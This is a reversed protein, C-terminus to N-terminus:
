NTISYKEIMNEYFKQQNGIWTNYNSGEIPPEFKIIGLKKLNETYEKTRVIQSIQSRWKKRTDEDVSNPIGIGFIGQAQYSYGLQERVTPVNPLVDLRTPTNVAIAKVLSNQILSMSNLINGFYFDTDGIAVSRAPESGGGKYPIKRGTLGISALFEVASVNNISGGGAYKLDKQNDKFYKQFESINNAPISKKITIVIPAYGIMIIDSFNEGINYATDKGYILPSVVLDSLGFVAPNKTKYARRFAEGGLAGPINIVAVKDDDSRKIESAIYRAMFDTVNGVPNPVYIQTIENAFCLSHVFSFLVLLYKM